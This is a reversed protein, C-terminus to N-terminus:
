KLLIGLLLGLGYDGAALLGGLVISVGIVVSSLRITQERTPWNVRQLEHYTAVLFRWLRRPGAFIRGM